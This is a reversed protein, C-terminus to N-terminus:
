VGSPGPGPLTKPTFVGYKLDYGIVSWSDLSGTYGIDVWIEKYPGGEFNEVKLVATIDGVFEDNFPDYSDATVTAQVFTPNDTEEPLDNWVSDGAQDPNLFQWYQHTSRPQGETWWGLHPSVSDLTPSAFAPAAILGVLISILLLKRM